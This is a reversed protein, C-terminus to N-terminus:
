QLYQNSVLYEMGNYNVWSDEKHSEVFIVQSGFPIRVNDQVEFSSNLRLVEAKRFRKSEKRQVEYKQADKLNKATYYVFSRDWTFGPRSDVWKKFDARSVGLQHVVSNVSLAGNPGAFASSLSKMIYETIQEEKTM